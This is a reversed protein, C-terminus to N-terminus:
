RVPPPSGEASALLKPDWGGTTCAHRFVSRTFELALAFPDPQARVDEWDLVYEGLTQM